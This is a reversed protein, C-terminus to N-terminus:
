LRLAPRRLTRGAGGGDPRQPRSQARHGDHGADLRARRLAGLGAASKDRRRVDQRDAQRCVGAGERGAGETGESLNQRKRLFLHLGLDPDHLRAAGAPRSQGDRRSQRGQRRASRAPGGKGEAKGDGFTYVWKGAKVAQVAPKNAKAPAKAAAKAAPKVPKAAAKKAPKPPDKKLAKRPPLAAKRAPASAKSKAANKKSKAVAKAM